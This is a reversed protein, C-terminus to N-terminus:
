VVCGASYSVIVRAISSTVPPASCGACVITPIVPSATGPQRISISHVATTEQAIPGEFGDDDAASDVAECARGQKRAGAPTDADELSVVPEPPRDLRVLDGNWAELVVDEAGPVRQPDTTGRVRLEAVVERPM